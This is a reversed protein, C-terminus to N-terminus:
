WKEVPNWVYLKSDATQRGKVQVCLGPYKLIKCLQLEDNSFPGTILQFYNASSTEPIVAVIKKKLQNFVTHINLIRPCIGNQTVKV